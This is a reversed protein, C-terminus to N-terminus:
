LFSTKCQYFIKCCRWWIGTHVGEAMGEQFVVSVTYHLTIELIKNRKLGQGL